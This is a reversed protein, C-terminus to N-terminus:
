RMGVAVSCSLKPKVMSDWLTQIRWLKAPSAIIYPPIVVPKGGPTFASAADVLEKYRDELTVSCTDGTSLAVNIKQSKFKDIYLNMQEKYEREEPYYVNVSWIGDKEGREVLGDLADGLLHAEVSRVASREGAANNYVVCQSILSEGNNVNKVAEDVYIAGGQGAYNNVMFCREIRFIGGGTNDGYVYIGGGRGYEETGDAQGSGISFGNVVTPYTNNNNSSQPDMNLCLVHTANDTRKSNEPFILNIEDVEDNMQIDGSLVSRFSLQYPKGETKRDEIRTEVGEFGGYLQVGSKLVFGGEPAIYLQDSQTIQEFGKVWIQAGAQAKDLAAQLPMTNDWSSGDQTGAGAPSVRYITGSQASAMATMFWAMVLVSLRFMNRMISM